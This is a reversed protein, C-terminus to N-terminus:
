LASVCGLASECPAGEGCAPDGGYDFPMAGGLAVPVGGPDSTGSPHALWSYSCVGGTCLRAAPLFFGGGGSGRSVECRLSSRVWAAMQLVIPCVLISSCRGSVSIALCSPSLVWGRRGGRAPFVDGGHDGDAFGHCWGAGVAFRQLNIASCSTSLGRLWRLAGQLLCGGALSGVGLV